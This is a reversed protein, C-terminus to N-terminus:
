MFSPVPTPPPNEVPQHLAVGDAGAGDVIGSARSVEDESGFVILLYGGDRVHREYGAIDDRALLRGLLVALADSSIATQAAGISGWALPGMVSLPGVGPIALSAAGVLFGALGGLWVGGLTGQRADGMTVVGHVKTDSNLDRAVISIREVPLGALALKRVAADADDLDHYRAFLSHAGETAEDLRASADEITPTTTSTM